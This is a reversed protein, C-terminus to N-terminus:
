NRFIRFIEISLCGSVLHVHQYQGDSWILTGAAFDREEAHQVDSQQGGPFGAHKDSLSGAVSPRGLGGDDGVARPHRSDGSAGGAPAVRRPQDKAVTAM